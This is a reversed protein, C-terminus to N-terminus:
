PVRHSSTNRSRREAAPGPGFSAAHLQGGSHLSTYDDTANSLCPEAELEQRLWWAAQAANSAGVRAMLRSVRQRCTSEAIAMM